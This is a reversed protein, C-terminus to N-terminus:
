PRRAPAQLRALLAALQPGTNAVLPYHDPFVGPGHAYSRELYRSSLAELAGALVNSGPDLHRVVVLGSPYCPIVTLELDRRQELLCELTKWTDGVWFNSRRERAAALPHPPLCDHLIVTSGPGCWREVNVFDRLAYEFWHMGDIFALDVPREGFVEARTHREFFADSTMHFLRTAPPLPRAPPRAVPDIGVVQSSHVALALSTGFEVGIELYSHPRLAEHLRALVDRYSPGPFVLAALTTLAGPFDPARAVLRDLARVAEASRESQALFQAEYYLPLLDDPREALLQELVQLAAARQGLGFLGRAELLRLGRSSAGSCAALGEQWAGSAFHLQALLAREVDDFAPLPGATAEAPDTPAGRPPVQQSPM